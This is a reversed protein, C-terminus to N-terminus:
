ANKHLLASEGCARDRKSQLLKLISAGVLRRGNSPRFVAPVLQMILALTRLTTARMQSLLLVRHVPIVIFHTRHFASSPMSQFQM